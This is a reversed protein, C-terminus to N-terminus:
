AGAAEADAKTGEDPKVRFVACYLAPAFLLTILTGAIIGGMMAIAMPGWFIQRSIPILALSAAAATLLIPRARSDSAEFVAAWRSRGKEILVEVEHILIISNRILIGVLALVGLLAVFGLPASFALMSAVVGIIGLPAVAMVIFMLRFSQMQVMVLVLMTLIMLPAVAAIPGQSKSTEENIGATVIKHTPPLEGAIADIQPALDANVTTPQDKSYVAAKVTVTPVRDRQMIMPQQIDWEIRAISALPVPIGSPSMLQLSQVAELSHRDQENGRAIVDILKDGNRLSTISAGYSVSALAQAVDAQTMGTMRLQEQDIVIRAIRVPESTDITINDLRPDTGLLAAVKRAADINVAMDPGSVRYQVPKGVPPGVEILKAFLEVGPQQAAYERVAARLSDRAEVDPTQIIIQGRYPAPTPADHTLIFRPASRGVYSTFYSVEERSALFAELKGIAENTAAISSNQRLTVDILLEPRDSSPFFQQEIKTMGALSIAFIIVTAAITVWKFRMAWTLARHFARRLRGPAPNHHPMRKPLFAVGLIPAFLVAVIWSLLLSIAIVYFLSQTYEGAMSNNLGIPIFGAVTVLTGSLMPFAISTWAYSAAKEIKDGMELRSIMTEIAIMADDVLLGLAIILAGLSVRQLTIGMMDLIVFTLALVLPISMSVVLGARLGLSIFSVALVIVVAEVLAQMFENISHDVVHPQDAVKDVNVGFPLHRAEAEMLADLAEGFELINAGQEMGIALGVADKGNYRVLASPPDEYGESVKAVDALTFYVEGARLPAAALEAASNFRGGVELVIQESSTQIVGAPRIANQDALTQMVLKVDLGLSALRRTDFEVYVVQDQTGIIDVKGVDDVTLIKDRLDEALDRLEAKSYGDGTLMYISGFVDGFNDNFAFGAFESPFEGRIDSMMNRVRLWINRIREGRITPKLDIYVVSVGPSTESRTFDLEDLEELKNEIRKTVQELMEATTAGPMQATVVMTKISFSPDEERGLNIYALAGAVLSVIMLFWVFSRHKLAWDSLNFSM